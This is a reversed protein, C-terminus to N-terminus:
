KPSRGSSGCVACENKVSSLPQWGPASSRRADAANLVGGPAVSRQNAFSSSGRQAQTLAIALASVAAVALAASICRLPMPAAPRRGAHLEAHRRGYSRAASVGVMVGTGALAAGVAHGLLPQGTNIAFRALLAGAATIALATRVWALTTRELQAGVDFVTRPPRRV